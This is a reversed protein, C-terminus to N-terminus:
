HYSHKKGFLEIILFLIILAFIFLIGTPIGFSAPIIGCVISVGGVTLAYPLQTRVHQIHNCSSALSSLITTDSIPSCHDGLVSGALVTSVVNHFIAVAQEHDMGAQQTILWSAPLILPYLIAMTGWSTGTSFAVLAALIFTITPVWAPALNIEIIIQSIFDATHMHKTILAISWAMVLIVIATLMTRFGNILSDVTKKISLIRGGVTLLVAILVGALSSWLLARYSDSAGIVGSLNRAFGISGDWPHASLGTAILGIITGVVVVLVPILANYAKTKTEPGPDLDNLKNSFSREEDETTDNGKLRAKKEAQFMPGFDKNRWILLVIFILTLVPYFSYKLSHLFVHYPTENLGLTTIGDQIYSLEAGIWTTVFAISAVPAATSDVLYSLKERSIKLKDALPRMTNGVVLTNAYDDFFISVGLLWTIFQGSRPSSAFRSLYHVVGKMGGNRTILNVMAGILMSFVIISLHGTDYLSQLIYTDIILQLSHILINFISGGSYISIILTGSFIGLFLATFVEKFLLAILIAILPPLVSMWLPIPKIVIHQGSSTHIETKEKPLFTYQAAGSDNIKVSDTYEGNRIMITKGAFIQRSDGEMQIQLTCARNKITIFPKEVSLTLNAHTTDEVTIETQQKGFGHNSNLLFALALLLGFLSKTM